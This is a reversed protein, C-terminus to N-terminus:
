FDVLLRQRLACRSVIKEPLGSSLWDSQQAKLYSTVDITRLDDVQPCASVLGAIDAMKSGATPTAFFMALPIKNADERNRLLFQRVVLGGMSHALFVVQEHDALVDDNKLYMRMNNAIDSIPLCGGFLRTEYQYVYIDFEQFAADDRMLDPWYTGSASTWSSKGNGTLGHVLVLVRKTAGQRKVVYGPLRPENSVREVSTESLSPHSPGATCASFLISLSIALYRSQTIRNITQLKFLVSRLRCRLIHSFSGRSTRTERRM